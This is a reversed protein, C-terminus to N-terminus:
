LSTYFWVVRLLCVLGVAVVVPVALLHVAAVVAPTVVLLVIALLVGNAVMRGLTRM